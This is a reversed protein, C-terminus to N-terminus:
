MTQSILNWKWYLLEFASFSCTEHKVYISARIECWMFHFMESRRLFKHYQYLIMILRKIVNMINIVYSHRSFSYSVTEIDLFCILTLFRWSFIKFAKLMGYKYHNCCQDIHHGVRSDVWAYNWLVFPMTEM